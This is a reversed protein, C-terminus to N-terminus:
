RLGSVRSGSRARFCELHYLVGGRSTLSRSALSSIFGEDDERVLVYPEYVGIVDGCIECHPKGPRPAASSGRDELM